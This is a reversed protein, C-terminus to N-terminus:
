FVLKYFQKKGVRLIDGSNVKVKFSSVKEENLKLGGQEILRKVESKTPLINLSVLLNVIDVVGDEVFEEIHLEPMEDPLERKSFVKIFNDYAKEAEDAGHFIKVIGKALELKLDRPNVHGEKISEEIEKAKDEDVDLILFYYESILEDPISMIKGFMTKPDETIGVYNGLSKSMKQVGDLGRLIPMIIAIQPQKGKAELLHRGMILNFKQDTGGLEVDADIAYSDYAQMIPYFLEHFFIPIDQSFRKQFDDRELIRALTFNACLRFWDEFTIKSLWESNFRVETKDKDLVKFVQEFYTKANEQIQEKSLPPRTKSRGSPDGVLGTFDGIIFVVQHGLEQFDKLKRLVVYHGLHLDPATPDAGLKVRLKKGSALREKLEEENIIEVTKRKIKEFADMSVEM